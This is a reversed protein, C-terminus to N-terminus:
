FIFEALSFMGTDIFNTRAFSQMIDKASQSTVESAGCALGIERIKEPSTTFLIPESQFTNAFKDSKARITEQSLHTKGATNYYDATLITGQQLHTKLTYITDEVVKQPVYMSVGEWVVLAKTRTLHLDELINALPKRILDAKYYQISNIDIKADKLRSIKEDSTAPFDVEFVGHRLFEKLRLARSDYGAGLLVIPMAHAYKKILNDIAAHRLIVWDFLYMMLKRFRDRRSIDEYSKLRARMKPSLFLHAYKDQIISNEKEWIYDLARFFCVMEATGSANGEEM